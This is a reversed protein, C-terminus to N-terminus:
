SSEDRLWQQQASFLNPLRISALVSRLEGRQTGGVLVAASVERWDTVTDLREM